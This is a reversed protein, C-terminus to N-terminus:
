SQIKRELNRVQEVLFVSGFVVLVDDASLMEEAKKLAQAPDAIGIAQLGANNIDEALREAKMARPHESQTAVIGRFRNGIPALLAAADKDGSIGVLGVLEKEPFYDELAEALRLGAAPTHAADLVIQMDGNMIEFRGPWEASSFGNRIADDGVPIGLADLVILAAYATIANEMQHKGHLKIALDLKNILGVGSWLSINQGDNSFEGREGHVHRGVEVIKSDFKNAQAHLLERVEEAQPAIVLPTEQKIIGAKHAAIESLSEGLISQHEYDIPTIVSVLPSIVNSADLRGGLGVEIVAVDVEHKSFYLFALATVIEFSTIGPIAELHPRMNELLNAAEGAAIAKGNIRIGAFPGKLHPSTYLGVKHGQAQLAAANLVCVSGKGNTGAVHLSAYDQEPHGLAEVFSEMKELSFDDESLKEQSQAGLDPYQSLFDVVAKWHADNM